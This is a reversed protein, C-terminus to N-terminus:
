NSAVSVGARCYFRRTPFTAPLRRAESPMDKSGLHPRYLELNKHILENTISPLAVSPKRNALVTDTPRVARIGAQPSSADLALGGLMLEWHYSVRDVIKTSFGRRSAILSITMTGCQVHACPNIHNCYRMSNAVCNNNVSLLSQAEGKADIMAVHQASNNKQADPRM